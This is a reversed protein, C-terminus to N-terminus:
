QTALSEGAKMEGPSPNYVHAVVGLKPSTLSPLRKTGALWAFVRGASSCDWRPEVLESKGKMFENFDAPAQKTNPGQDYAM